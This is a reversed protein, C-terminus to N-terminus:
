PAHSEFGERPRTSVDQSAASCGRARSLSVVPLCAMKIDDKSVNKKSHAPEHEALFGVSM